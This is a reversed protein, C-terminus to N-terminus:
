SYTFIVSWFVFHSNKDCLLYFEKVFRLYKNGIEIHKINDDDDISAERLHGQCGEEPQAKGGQTGAGHGTAQM